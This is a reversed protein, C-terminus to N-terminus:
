KRAVSSLLCVTQALKPLLLCRQNQFQHSWKNTATQRKKWTYIRTQIKTTNTSTILHTKILLRQSQNTRHRSYTMVASTAIGRSSAVSGM